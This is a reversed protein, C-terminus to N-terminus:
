KDTNNGAEPLSWIRVVRPASGNGQRMSEALADKRCINRLKHYLQMAQCHGNPATQTGSSSFSDKIVCKYCYYSDSLSSGPPTSESSHKQLVVSDQLSTSQLPLFFFFVFVLGLMKRTNTNYFNSTLKPSNKSGNRSM